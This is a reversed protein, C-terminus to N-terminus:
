QKTAVGKLNLEFSIDDLKEWPIEAKFVQLWCWRVLWKRVGPWNSRRWLRHPFRGIGKSTDMWINEFGANKLVFYLSHETFSSFHTYDNYRWRGFLIANANPVTLVVKGGPALAAYVARMLDIQFQIPVHELVDLLVIFAFQGPHQKLWEITNETVVVAFGAKRCREAQEASIELGQLQTFGLNRLARLAFGYGCGIDLVPLTRDAPVDADLVGRLWSAMQEAHAESDDHFRGYYISYDFNSM